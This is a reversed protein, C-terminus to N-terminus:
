SDIAKRKPARKGRARGWGSWESRESCPRWIASNGCSDRAKVGLVMCVIYILM